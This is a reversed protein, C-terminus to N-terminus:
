PFVVSVEYETFDDGMLFTDQIDSGDSLAADGFFLYFTSTGLSPLSPVKVWVTATTPGLSEIWYSLPTTEDSNQYVRLDRGDSQAHAFTFNATTLSLKVQVNTLTSAVNNTVTTPRRYAFAM